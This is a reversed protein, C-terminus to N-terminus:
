RMEGMKERSTSLLENMEESDCQKVFMINEKWHQILGGLDEDEGMYSTRGAGAIYTEMNQMDFGDQKNKSRPSMVALRFKDGPVENSHDPTPTFSDHENIIVIAYEGINLDPFPPPWLTTSEAIICTNFLLAPLPGMETSEGGLNPSASAFANALAFGTHVPSTSIYSRRNKFACNLFTILGNILKTTSLLTDHIPFVPFTTKDQLLPSYHHEARQWDVQVGDRKRLNPKGLWEGTLIRALLVNTISIRTNNVPSSESMSVLVQHKPKRSFARSFLETHYIQKCLPNQGNALLKLAVAVLSTAPM